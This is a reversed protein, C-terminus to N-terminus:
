FGQGKEEAFGERSQDGARFGGGWSLAGGARHSLPWPGARWGAARRERAWRAETPGERCLQAWRCCEENEVPSGPLFGPSTLSTM